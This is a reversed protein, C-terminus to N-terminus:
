KQADYIGLIEAASLARSYVRIDDAKGSLYGSPTNGIRFAVTPNTFVGSASTSTVLQGNVYGLLQSGSYVFSLLNWTNPTVTAANINYTTGASNEFRMLLTDGGSQQQVFFAANSNNNLGFYGNASSPNNPPYVWGSVTMASQNALVSSFGAMNVYDTNGDFFGAYSGMKASTTYYGNTGAPTGGWTGNNGSGSQDITTSGTGENMPWYGVLGSPSYLLSLNPNSGVAAVEPYTSIEPTTALQAKYKQSEMVATVAYQTGNTSYAYFLNTSTQNTPDRPLSGLPSGSSIASFNLPIWGNGNTAQYTTSTNCQWTFSGTSSPLGLGQCQDGATSTASPDYVSIYSTSASGLSGGQDDAYLNVAESINALDSFRSSDRAERLLEAPNLALIVVVALVAIIAIVVLLEILTFASRKM